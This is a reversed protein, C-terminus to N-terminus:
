KHSWQTKTAACPSERTAALRFDSELSNPASRMATTERATSGPSQTSPSSYNCYKPETTSVGPSQFVPETTTACPSLEGWPTPDKWLLSQVRTRQMPLLIRSWRVVLFARMQKQQQQQQLTSYISWTSECSNLVWIYPTHDLLAKYLFVSLQSYKVRPGSNSM